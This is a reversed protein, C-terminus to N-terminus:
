GAPQAARERSPRLGVLVTMSLVALVVAALRFADVYGFAEVAPQMALPSVFQGLFISTTMAGSALGRRAAPAVDLVRAIFGPLVWGFGCGALAVTAAIAPLSTAASLLLFGAGMVAFGFAPTGGPGLRRRLAGFAFAACGASLPVAAVVLGAAVPEGHGIRALYFPVQTPVVYFLVFTVGSLFVLFALQLVWPGAGEEGGDARTSPVDRPPRAAPIASWLFPLYLLGVAYLAFVFFVDVGALWGAFIVFVFGGFNTAAMQYGMFRGRAAGEFLDGVLAAQATMVLAVSLGLLLRSALLMQLDPLVLGASGSLAFLGVGALLFPRRGYRDVAMGAFPALLAGALSPATVLLRTLLAADPTGAFAAEIGPLAPSITANSLITLSAALLLALAQRDRLLDMM